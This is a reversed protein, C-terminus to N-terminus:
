TIRARATPEKKAMRLSKEPFNIEDFSEETFTVSEDKNNKIEQDSSFFFYNRGKKNLKAGCVSKQEM